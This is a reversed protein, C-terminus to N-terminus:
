FYKSTNFKLEKNALALNNEVNEQHSLFCKLTRLYANRDFNWFLTSQQDDADSYSERSWHVTYQSCTVQINIPTRGPSDTAISLVKLKRSKGPLDHEIMRIHRRLLRIYEHDLQICEWTHQPEHLDALDVLPWNNIRFNM